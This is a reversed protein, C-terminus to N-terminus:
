LQTDPSNGETLRRLLLRAKQWQRQTTRLSAGELTAVEPLSLGALGHLDILRTLGPDLQGMAELGRALDELRVDSEPVAVEQEEIQTIEYEGGRKRARRARLYDIVLHRLAKSAYSLFRKEDPFSPGERDALRLYAEHVLTTTGLTLEGGVRRLHHEALSHLEAYLAGFLAKASASDGRDSADFLQILEAM